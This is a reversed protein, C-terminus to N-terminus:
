FSIKFIFSEKIYYVMQVIYKPKPPIIRRNEIKINNIKVGIKNINPLNIDNKLKNILLNSM